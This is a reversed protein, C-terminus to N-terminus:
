RAPKGAPVVPEPLQKRPFLAERTAAHWALSAVIASAQMLDAPVVRDYDDMNSHHTRTSYDLADQIFQFGPLGLADFSLHDTGGTSRLTLTDAGMDHFPKLWAEFVPRAMDNGQLHVGRIKGGGNDDNLYLSLKSHEPKLEMTMPDGFHARVYGRSGYLGEEEAAWLGVRVTRDMKLGLTSLIRMAEMMVACGTGNDTAGRAGHWSDFHAGLMVVEDARSGGPIEAIINATALPDDQYSADLDIEVVVKMERDLMRLIRNYEEPALVVAPPPIPAGAKPSGLEEAFIIGGSGREDMALLGAVKEENLFAYWRGFAEDRREYFDMLVEFPAYDLIKARKEREAPLKMLPLELPEARSPEPAMAYDVLEGAEWRDVPPDTAPKFEREERILLIKGKLKGRQKQIWEDIRANVRELDYRDPDANDKFLPAHLVEGKVPGKTGASWALPVGHLREAVPEIMRVDLREFSWGRGFDGWPELHANSLGWSKMEQVAWEAAARYGPSGALRPGHIDTLWFLHDMAMSHAFAEHKIRHIIELDVRETEDALAPLSTLSAFLLLANALSRITTM